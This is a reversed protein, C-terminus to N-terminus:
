QLQVAPRGGQAHIGKILTSVEDVKGDSKTVPVAKNSPDAVMGVDESKVVKVAGKAPVPLLKLKDREKILAEVGAALAESDIKLKTIAAVVDDGEKLGLAKTVNECFARRASLDNNLKEVEGLAKALNGGNHLKEAGCDAGLSSAHDHIQQIMELDKQSNRAGAKALTNLSDALKKLDGGPASKTAMAIAEQTEETAMAILTESLKQAADRMMAPIESNDGEYEAESQVDSQMNFLDSLMQALASVTWLGKELPRSLLVHMDRVAKLVTTDKQKGALESAWKAFPIESNMDIDANDLVKKFVGDATTGDSKVMSFTASPVCPADVLSLESPRAEYRKCGKHIPDDVKNGVYKGGISFGTYVGAQVKRWENDDVVHAAVDIAKESDNFNLEKLVGAAINSHMARVNGVSKGGTSKSFSESWQVFHPKSKEYDFIEGSHDPEEAVARGYVMRAAEDVKTINAFINLNRNM